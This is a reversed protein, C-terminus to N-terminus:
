WNDVNTIDETKGCSNCKCIFCPGLGTSIVEVSIKGGTTSKFKCNKHKECFELYSTKETDDMLDTVDM